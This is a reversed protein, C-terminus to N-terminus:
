EKNFISLFETFHMGEYKKHLGLTLDNPNKIGVPYSKRPVNYGDPERGPGYAHWYYPGEKLKTKEEALINPAVVAVVAAGFLRKFFDKRNM